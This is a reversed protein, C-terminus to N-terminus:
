QYIIEAGYGQTERYPDSMTNMQDIGFDRACTINAETLVRYDSAFGAYNNGINEAAFQMLIPLRPIFDTPQGELTALYREKSNM